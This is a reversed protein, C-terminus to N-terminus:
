FRNMIVLLLANLTDGARIGKLLASKLQSTETFTAAQCVAKRCYVTDRAMVRSACSTQLLCVVLHVYEYCVENQTKCM